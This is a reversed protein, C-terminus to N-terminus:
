QYERSFKQWPSAAALCLICGTLATLMWILITFRWGAGQALAAFGYTSLAAGIYTCANLLGSYTSVRGSQAFRKPVVTILMLNVGHMCGVILAM